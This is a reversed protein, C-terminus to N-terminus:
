SDNILAVAVGAPLPGFERREGPGISFDQEVAATPSAGIRGWVVQSTDANYISVFDGVTATATTAASTGSTTVEEGTIGPGYLRPRAPIAQQSTEVAASAALNLSSKPWTDAEQSTPRARSVSRGVLHPVTYWCPGRLRETV